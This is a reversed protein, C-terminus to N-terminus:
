RPVVLFTSAALLDRGEVVRGVTNLNDRWWVFPMVTQHLTEGVWAGFTDPVLSISLFVGYVAVELLRQVVLMTFAPPIHELVDCCYVFDHRGVRAVVDEWLALEHFPLVRAEDARVDAVDCLSVRCGTAALALGGQGAGCGADLVSIHGDVEQLVHVRNGRDHGARIEGAPLRRIMDAFIPLFMVGPSNKSYGEVGWMDTYKQREARALDSM